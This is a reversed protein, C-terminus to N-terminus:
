SPVSDDFPVCKMFRQSEDDTLKYYVHSAARDPAHNQWVDVVERPIRANTCITKFSSRLSHFT